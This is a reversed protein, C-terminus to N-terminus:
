RRRKRTTSRFRLKARELDATEAMEAVRDGVQGLIWSEHERLADIKKSCEDQLLKLEHKKTVFKENGFCREQNQNSIVCVQFQLAEFANTIEQADVQPVSADM